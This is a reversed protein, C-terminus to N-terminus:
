NYGGKVGVEKNEDMKGEFKVIIFKMFVMENMMWVIIVVIDVGCNMFQWGEQYKQVVVDVSMVFYGVYKGVKNVVVLVKKM